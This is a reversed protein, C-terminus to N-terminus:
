GRLHGLEGRLVDLLQDLAAADLHLEAPERIAARDAAPVARIELYVLDAPLPHIMSTVLAVPDGPRHQVHFTQRHEDFVADDLDFTALDGDDVPELASGAPQAAAPTVLDVGLEELLAVLGALQPADVTAYGLMAIGEDELAPFDPHPTALAVRVSGEGAGVLAVPIPGDFREPVPPRYARLGALGTRARQGFWRAVEDDRAASWVAADM